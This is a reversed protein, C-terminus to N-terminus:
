GGIASIPTTEQIDLQVSLPIAIPTDITLCVEMTGRDEQVEYEASEVEATVM